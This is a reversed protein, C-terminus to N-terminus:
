HADAGNGDGHDGDLRTRGTEQVYPYEKQQDVSTHTTSADSALTIGASAAVQPSIKALRL